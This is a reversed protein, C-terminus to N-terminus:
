SWLRDSLHALYGHRWGLVSIAFRRTSIFTARSPSAQTPLADAGNVKAQSRFKGRRGCHSCDSAEPSGFPWENLPFSLDPLVKEKRIQNPLRLLHEM